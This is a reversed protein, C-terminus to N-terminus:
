LIQMNFDQEIKCLLNKVMSPLKEVSSPSNFVYIPIKMGNWVLSNQNFLENHRDHLVQIFEPTLQEIDEQRNRKKIREMCVEPATENYIILDPKFEKTIFARTKELLGYEVEDLFNNKRLGKAFIEMSSIPSRETFNIEGLHNLRDCLTLLALLQFKMSWGEFDNYYEQLVNVGHFNRWQNIPETFVKVKQKDIISQITRLLTTKGSGINGEVLITFGKKCMM